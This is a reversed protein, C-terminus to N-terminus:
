PTPPSAVASPSPSNLINYLPKVTQQQNLIVHRLIAGIVHARTENHLTAGTTVLYLILLPDYEDDTILTSNM